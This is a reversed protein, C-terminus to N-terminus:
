TLFVAVVLAQCADNTCVNLWFLINTSTPFTHLPYVSNFQGFDQNLLPPPHFHHHWPIALKIYLHRSSYLLPVTKRKLTYSWHILLRRSSPLSVSVDKRASSFLLHSGGPTREPRLCFPTFTHFLNFVFPLGSIIKWFVCYFCFTHSKQSWVIVSM